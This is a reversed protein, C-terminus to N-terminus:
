KSIYESKIANYVEEGITNKIIQSATHKLSKLFDPKDAVITSIAKLADNEDEHNTFVEFLMPQNYSGPNMFEDIYKMFDEKTSASFYKFGLDESYHKVLLPSKNGYHGGAAIYADAREGFKSGPHTYHRFETGKGNNVLLIRINGGVHRNGLSNMDYFFALDGFIGFYLIEKNVLSAGLLTSMDGDIGFGGVNCYARVSRPIEFFNWSRLSNLIGFHIVSNEPLKSSMVSAIWINSFPFIPLDTRLRDIMAKCKEFHSTQPTYDRSLYTKFFHEERMQFVCEMRKFYDRIQGDESVRWVTKSAHLRSQTYYDGSIEGLHILLDLKTNEDNITQTALIPYLLRYKGKYGSTHDCFVVANYIECFRDVCETLSESFPLHSGIFIGIKGSPIEPLKSAYTYRSIMRVQPLTEVSFDYLEGCTIVNLHVPGGGDRNLELIAENTKIVCNWEDDKTKIAPIQASYKVMDKLQVTRDVFQPFLHGSREIGFSSTLALVPIKRYFAETLGPIYNRSATAGTCTLVVPEGSEVAMGCAMYAASREDPASYMEFFSDNMMSGVIAINTTGPSAIVKRIGYEKLLAIVIQANREKTYYNNEM